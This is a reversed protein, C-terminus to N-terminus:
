KWFNQTGSNNAVRAAALRAGLGTGKNGGTNGTNGVSSGTGQQGTQQNNQNTQQQQQSKGKGGKDNGTNQTDAGFWVPYKTKLEGVLSKVDTKDDLKAMIIFVADDVFEPKVGLQMAEAKAEAKKARSEAEAIKIQQQAMQQQQQQEPPTMAQMFAKFMNMMNTDEPNIGMERFAAARGQNKEATMMRNVDEQTFTKGQAGTGGTTQNNQQTSQQSQQQTQTNGTNNGSNNNAATQDTTNQAEKNKNEEM